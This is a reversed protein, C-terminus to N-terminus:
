KRTQPGDLSNHETPETELETTVNPVHSQSTWYLNVVKESSGAALMKLTCSASSALQANQRVSLINSVSLRIVCIWVFILM